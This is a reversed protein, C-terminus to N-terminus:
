RSIVTEYANQIDKFRKEALIRFEEGLHAVKDPHYKNALQRYAKQIDEKSAHRPVGLIEYPDSSEQKAKYDYSQRNDSKRSNNEDTQKFFDDMKEEFKQRIKEDGPNRYYFWWLIIWTIIDDIWGIGVITDPILDFPMLTYILVAFTFFIKLWNRNM